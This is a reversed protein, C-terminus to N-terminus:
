PTMLDAYSFGLWCKRLIHDLHDALTADPIPLGEPDTPDNIIVSSPTSHLAHDTGLQMVIGKMMNKIDQMVTAQNLELSATLAIYLLM